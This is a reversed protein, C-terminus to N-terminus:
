EWVFKVAQVNELQRLANAEDIFVSGDKEVVDM